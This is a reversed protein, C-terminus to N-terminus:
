IMHYDYKSIKKYSKMLYGKEDCGFYTRTDKGVAATQTFAVGNKNKAAATNNQNRQETGTPKWGKLITVAAEPTKPYSLDRKLGDNVFM